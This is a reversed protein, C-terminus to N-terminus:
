KNKIFPQIVEAGDPRIGHIKPEPYKISNTPIEDSDNYTRIKMEFIISNMIGYVAPLFMFVMLFIEFVFEGQSNYDLWNIRDNTFLALGTIYTLVVVCMLSHGLGIIKLWNIKIINKM